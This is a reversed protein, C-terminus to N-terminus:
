PTWRPAAALPRDDDVARITASNRANASAETRPPPDGVGRERPPRVLELEGDEVAAAHVM